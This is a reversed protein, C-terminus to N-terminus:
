NEQSQMFQRWMRHTILASAATRLAPHLSERDVMKSPAIWEYGDYEDTDHKFASAEDDSVEVSMITSIDATGHNQPEQQRRAWVFSFHALTDVQRDVPLIFGLERKLHRTM